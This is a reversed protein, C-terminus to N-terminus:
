DTVVLGLKVGIQRRREMVPTGPPLAPLGLDLASAKYQSVTSLFIV